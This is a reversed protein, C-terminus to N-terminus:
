LHHSRPVIPEDDDDYYPRTDAPRPSFVSQSVSQSSRRHENPGRDIAVLVVVGTLRLPPKCRM